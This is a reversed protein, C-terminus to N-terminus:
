SHAVVFARSLTRFSDRSFVPSSPTKNKQKSLISQHMLYYQLLICTQRRSLLFFDSNVVRPTMTTAFLPLLAPPPRNHSRIYSRNTRVGFHFRECTLISYLVVGWLITGGRKQSVIGRHMSQLCLSLYIFLSERDCTNSFSFQM